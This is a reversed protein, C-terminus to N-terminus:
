SSSAVIKMSTDNGVYVSCTLSTLYRLSDYNKPFM